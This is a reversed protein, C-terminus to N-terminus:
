TSHKPVLNNLNEQLYNKQGVKLPPHAYVWVPKQENKSEWM